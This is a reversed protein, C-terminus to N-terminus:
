PRVRLEDMLTCEGYRM